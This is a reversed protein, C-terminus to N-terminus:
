SKSLFLIKFILIKWFPIKKTHKYQGKKQKLFIYQKDNIEIMLLSYVSAGIHKSIISKVNGVAITRKRVDVVCTVLTQSGATQVECSIISWTGLCFQRFGLVLQLFDFNWFKRSITWFDGPKLVIVWFAHGFYSLFIKTENNASKRVKPVFFCFVLM